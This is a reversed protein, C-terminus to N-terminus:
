WSLTARLKVLETIRELIRELQDSVNGSFGHCGEGEVIDRLQATYYLILEDVEGITVNDLTKM